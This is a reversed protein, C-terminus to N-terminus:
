GIWKDKRSSTRHENFCIYGKYDKNCDDCHIIKGSCKENLFYKLCLPCKNKCKHMDRNAYSVRCDSCYYRCGLFGAINTILDFHNGNKYLIIRDEYEKNNTTFVLHDYEDKDYVDVTSKLHTAFINLDDYSNGIVKIAVGAKKHLKKALTEQYPRSKKLARIDNDDYKDSNLIAKGTVLCRAMCMSDTNKIVIKSKKKLFNNECLVTGGMGHPIKNYHVSITLAELDQIDKFYVKEALSNLENFLLEPYANTGIKM